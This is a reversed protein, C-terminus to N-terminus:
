KSKSAVEKEKVNGEPLAKSTAEDAKKMSVIEKGRYMGTVPDM